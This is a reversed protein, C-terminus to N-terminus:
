DTVDQFRDLSDFIILYNAGPNMQQLIKLHAQADNRRRFRAVVTRQMQPLLRVICWPHLRDYYTQVTPHLLAIACSKTVQAASIPATSQPLYAPIM